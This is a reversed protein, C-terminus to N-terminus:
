GWKKLVGHLVNEADWQDESTFVPETCARVFNGIPGIIRKDDESWWWDGRNRGHEIIWALALYGVFLRLRHEPRGPEGREGRATRARISLWTLDRLLSTWRDGDGESPVIKGNVALYAAVEDSVRQEATPVLLRFLKDSTREIQALQRKVDESKARPPLSPDSLNRYYTVGESINEFLSAPFGGKPAFIELIRAQQEATYPPCLVPTQEDAVMKSQSVV